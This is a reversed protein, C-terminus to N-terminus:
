PSPPRRGCNAAHTSGARDRSSSRAPCWMSVNRLRRSRRHRGSWTPSVEAQGRDKTRGASCSTVGHRPAMTSRRTRPSTTAQRHFDPGPLQWPPFQPPGGRGTVDDDDLLGAPRRHARSRAPAPAQHPPDAMRLIVPPDGFGPGAPCRRRRPARPPLLPAEPPARARAVSRIRGVCLHRAVRRPNSM